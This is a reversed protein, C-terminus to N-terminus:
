EAGPIDGGFFMSGPGFAEFYVSDVLAELQHPVWSPIVFVDGPNMTWTKDLSTARLQGEALMIMGEDPHNHHPGRGGQKMNIRTMGVTKAAIIRISAKERVSIPEVDDFNIVRAVPKVVQANAGTFFLALIASHLFRKM